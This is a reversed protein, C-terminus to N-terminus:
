SRTGAMTLVSEGLFSALSGATFVHSSDLLGTADLVQFRERSLRRVIPHGNAPPVPQWRIEWTDTGEVGEESQLRYTVIVDSHGANPPDTFAPGSLIM